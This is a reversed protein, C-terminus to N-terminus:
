ARIRSVLGPMDIEADTRVVLTRTAEAPELPDASARQDALVRLDAESVDGGSRSRKGLRRALEADDATTSVIVSAVGSRTARERVRDRFERRLLSADVIVTQGAELLGGAIDLIHEYVELRARETYAGEGVASGTTASEDLGLLRKRETDTRIRIAPLERALRASLWSKGSGSYGHMAILAPTPRDLWSLALRMYNGVEAVDISRGTDDDREMWRISAVKARIMCHYVVYLDLLRMGGYDGTLELYRNLFAYALDSRDRAALDMVLFATDSVVDIDRLEASFEVCDFAAIRDDLRVLNALHLDGHCQRVYGDRQRAVLVDRLRNLERDTWSRVRSLDEAAAIREVHPYNDDIPKAIRRFADPAGEFPVPEAQTHLSAVTEALAKMDDLSLRGADLQKDLRASQDFRRMRLVYEIANGDGGIVPHECDGCVPLVDLYLEPAWRRNLRLEDRCFGERRELGTFDLFNLQIAKKMKYAFSGALFVWSIHTEIIEVDDVPHPFGRGSKLAEVITAQCEQESM